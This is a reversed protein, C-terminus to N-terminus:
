EEKIKQDAYQKGPAKRVQSKAMIITKAISEVKRTSLGTKKSIDGVRLNASERDQTPTEVRLNCLRVAKQEPSLNRRSIQIVMRMDRICIL